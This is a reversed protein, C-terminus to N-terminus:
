GRPGVRRRGGASREGMSTWLWWGVGAFALERIRRWLAYTAGLVDSGGVWRVLLVIGSEQVGVAGPIWIGLVKVVGIFAEVALAQGWHLPMGLVQSVLWIEVTDLMWGSWYWAMAGVFRGPHDRYFGRLTHDVRELQPRRAELRVSRVGCRGLVTLMVGFAGRRQWWGLVGVVMVGGALVLGVGTWLGEESNGVWLFAAAGMAVFLVQATTQATKSVLAAVTGAEGSVGRRALLWVKLAEGGVYATPVLANVSEGCWRIRFLTPWAVPPVQAFSTRWGQTDVAYVMLYPLFLLPVFLGLRQFAEGVAAWDTGRLAWGMCILGLGAAAWRWRRKM